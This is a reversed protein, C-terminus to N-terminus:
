GRAGVWEGGETRAWEARARDMFAQLLKGPCETEGLEGHTYVENLPVQYIKRLFGIFERLATLQAASPSQVEFNGLLVIGLNHANHLRVHAGQYALPRAQWVRGARDVVFHYAIDAWNRDTTRTGAHFERISELEGATPAWADTQIEGATHHVTIRSVGGMPAILAMRPRAETWDTRPVIIVPADTAHAIARGSADPFVEAGLDPAQEGNRSALNEGEEPQNARSNAGQNSSPGQAVESHAKSSGADQSEAAIRNSNQQGSVATEPSGSPPKGATQSDSLQQTQQTKTNNQPWKMLGLAIGAGVSIGMGLLKRRTWVGKRETSKDAAGGCDECM